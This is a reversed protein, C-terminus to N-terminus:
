FVFVLLQRFKNIGDCSFAGVIGFQAFRSDKQQTIRAVGEVRIKLMVVYGQFRFETQLPEITFCAKEVVHSIVCISRLFGLVGHGPSHQFVITIHRSPIPELVM